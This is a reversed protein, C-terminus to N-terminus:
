LGLIRAPNEKTMLDLERPGAGLSQFTQIFQRFGDTPTPGHIMGLDSSLITREPGVAEIAEWIQAASWYLRRDVPFWFPLHCAMVHEISAGADVLTRQREISFNLPEYEPHSVYVARVGMRRAESVVALSEEFSLHGCSLAQRGQVCLDLIERVVPKLTGDEDLVTLGVKPFPMKQTIYGRSPHARAHEVHNKAWMTPLWVVRGGMRISADVPAASLGGVPDNLVVGGYIEVAPVVKRAIYARDATHSIHGKLVIARMGKAAAEQAVEVDDMLRPAYDPTTHIHIDVTDRLLAEYVELTV